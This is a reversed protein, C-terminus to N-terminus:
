DNFVLELAGGERRILHAMVNVKPGTGISEIFTIVPKEDDTTILQHRVGGINMKQVAVPVTGLDEGDSLMLNLKIARDPPLSRFTIVSGAVSGIVLAVVITVVTM